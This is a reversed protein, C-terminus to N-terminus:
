RPHGTFPVCHYHFTSDSRLWDVSTFVLSRCDSGSDYVGDFEVSRDFMAGQRGKGNITGTTTTLLVKPWAKRSDCWLRVATVIHFDSYNKRPTDQLFLASM